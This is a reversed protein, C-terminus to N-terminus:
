ACWDILAAASSKWAFSSWKKTTGDWGRMLTFFVIGVDMQRGQQPLPLPLELPTEIGMSKEM